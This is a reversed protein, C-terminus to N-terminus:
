KGGDAYKFHAPTLYKRCEKGIWMPPQWEDGIRHRLQCWEIDEEPRNCYSCYEM